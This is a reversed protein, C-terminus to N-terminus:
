GDEGELATLADSLLQKLETVDEPKKLLEIVCQRIYKCDIPNEKKTSRLLGDFRQVYIPGTLLVQIKRLVPMLACLEDLTLGLREKSAEDLADQNM